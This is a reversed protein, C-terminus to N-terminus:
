RAAFTIQCNPPGPSVETGRSSWPDQEPSDPPGPSVGVIEGASTVFFVAINPPGPSTETLSVSSAARVQYTPCVPNPPTAFRLLIEQGTEGFALTLEGGELSEGGPNHIVGCVAVTALADNQPCVPNPPLLAGTFVTLEGWMTSSSGEASRLQVNTVFFGSAAESLRPWSTTDTQPGAVPADCGLGVLGALCAARVARRRGTIRTAM